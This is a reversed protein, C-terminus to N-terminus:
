PKVKCFANWTNQWSCKIVGISTLCGETPKQMVVYALGNDAWGCSCVQYGLSYSKSLDEFTALSTGQDLCNQRAQALTMKYDGSPDKSLFVPIPYKCFVDWKSQWSCRVVGISTLCGDKAEQMVLYSIGNEVWGCGCKQYGDQYAAELDEFTAISTGRAQCYAKAANFDLNYNTSYYIVKQSATALQRDSAVLSTDASLSIPYQEEKMLNRLAALIPEEQTSRKQAIAETAAVLFAILVCYGIMCNMKLVM